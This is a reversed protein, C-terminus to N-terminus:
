FTYILSVLTYKINKVAALRGFGRGKIIDRSALQLEGSGHLLTYGSQQM